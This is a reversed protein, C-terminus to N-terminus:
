GFVMWVGLGYGLRFRPDAKGAGYGMDLKECM